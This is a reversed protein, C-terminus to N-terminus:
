GVFGSVVLAVSMVSIAVAVLWVALGLDQGDLISTASRPNAHYM